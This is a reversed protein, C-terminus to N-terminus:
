GGSPREAAVLKAGRPASFGFETYDPLKGTEVTFSWDKSVINSDKVNQRYGGGLLLYGSTEDGDFTYWTNNVAPTSATCQVTNDVREVLATPIWPRWSGPRANPGFADDLLRLTYAVVGTSRLRLTPFFRGRWDRHLGSEETGYQTSSYTNARADYNWLSVGDAAIRGILRDNEFSLVELRVANQAPNHVFGVTVKVDVAADGRLEQGTTVIKVKDAGALQALGQEMMGQPTTQGFCLVPSLALACALAKVYRNSGTLATKTESSM